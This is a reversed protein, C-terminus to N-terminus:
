ASLGAGAACVCVADGQTGSVDAVLCYCMCAIFMEPKFGIVSRKWCTCVKPRAGAAICLRDYAVDAGSALHVIQLYPLVAAPCRPVDAAHAM